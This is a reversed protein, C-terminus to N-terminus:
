QKIKTKKKSNFSSLFFFKEGIFFKFFHNKRLELIYDIYFLM